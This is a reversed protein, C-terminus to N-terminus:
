DKDKASRIHNQIARNLKSITLEPVMQTCIIYRKNGKPMGSFTVHTFDSLEFPSEKILNEAEEKAIFFYDARFSHIMKLMSLNDATTLVERPKHKLIREDIFKGYSYGNKRLIKLGRDNFIKEVSMPNFIRENDVRALAITPKDQYIHLTYRAFKEREPNKFWGLACEMRKNQKIIELQRSPPTNEWRFPIGAKKFVDAVPTACIGKVGDPFTFSYPKRDHYHLIMTDFHNASRAHEAKSEKKVSLDKHYIRTRAHMVIGFFAICATAIFIWKIKKM